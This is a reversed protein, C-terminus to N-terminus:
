RIAVNAKIWRGGWYVALAPAAFLLGIVLVGAAAALRAPPGVHLQLYWAFPSDGLMGHAVQGPASFWTGTIRTDLVAWEMMPLAVLLFWSGIWFLAGMVSAMPTRPPRDCWWIWLLAQLSLAVPSAFDLWDDWWPVPGAIMHQLQSEAAWPILRALLLVAVCLGAIRRATWRLFWPSQGRDTQRRWHLLVFGPVVLMALLPAHQSAFSLNRLAANPAGQAVQLALMVQWVDLVLNAGYYTLTFAVLAAAGHRVIHAQASGGHTARLLGKIAAPDGFHERVLVFADEDTLPQEGSVYALWEDEMHGYLEEQIEPDLDHAVSIQRCLDRMRKQVVSDPQRDM